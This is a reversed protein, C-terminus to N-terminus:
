LKLRKVGKEDETPMKEETANVIDVDNTKQENEKLSDDKEGESKGSEFPGKAVITEQAREVESQPEVETEQQVNTKEDEGKVDNVVDDKVEIEFEKVSKGEKQDVQVGLSVNDVNNNNTGKVDDVVEDDKVEFCVGKVNECKKQEVKVELNNNNNNTDRIDDVVDDKVDDGVDEASEGVKQEMKLGSGVNDVNNNKDKTESGNEQNAKNSVSMDKRQLVTNGSTVDHKSKGCGM